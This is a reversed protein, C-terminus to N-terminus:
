SKIRLYWKTGKHRLLQCWTICMLNLWVFTAAAMCRALSASPWIEQMDRTSVALRHLVVSNLGTRDTEVVETSVGLPTGLSKVDVRAQEWYRRPVIVEERTEVKHGTVRLDGLLAARRFEDFHREYVAEWTKLIAYQRWAWVSRNLLYDLAAEGDTERFRLSTARRLERRLKKQSIREYLPLAILLSAFASASAICGVAVWSLNRAGTTFLVIVGWWLFGYV